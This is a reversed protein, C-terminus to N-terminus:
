VEIKKYPPQQLLMVPLHFEINSIQRPIAGEVTNNLHNTIQSVMFSAIMAGCHTTAKMSCPLEVREEDSFYTAEYSDFKDKSWNKGLVFVQGSEAALRGDIFFSGEKGKVKWEEYIIRRAKLNDFGVAVVDCDSVIGQWQSPEETIFTKIPSLTNQGCLRDILDYMAEVKPKGIDQKGYLQGALNEEAVTDDDVLVVEAGARCLFFSLWSGIGGAGGVFILSASVKDFWPLNKFRRFSSNNKKTSM